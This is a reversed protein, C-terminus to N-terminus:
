WSYSRRERMVRIRKELDNALVMFDGYHLHEIGALDSPLPSDDRRLIIVPRNLGYLVGLEFMVNPKCDSIDIVAIHCQRIGEFIKQLIDIENLQEVV